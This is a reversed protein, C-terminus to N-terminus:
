KRLREIFESLEQQIAERESDFKLQLGNKIVEERKLFELRIEERLENRLIDLVELTKTTNDCIKGEVSSMEIIHVPNLIKSDTQEKSYYSSDDGSITTPPKGVLARFFDITVDDLGKSLSSALVEKEQDSPKYYGFWQKMLVGMIFSFIGFLALSNSISLSIVTLLSSYIDLTCSFPPNLDYLRECVKEFSAECTENVLSEINARIEPCDTLLREYPINLCGLPIGYYVNPSQYYLGQGSLCSKSYEQNLGTELLYRTVNGNCVGYTYAIMYTTTAGPADNVYTTTSAPGGNSFYTDNFTDYTVMQNFGSNLTLYMLMYNTPIGSIPMRSSQMSTASELLNNFNQISPYVNWSIDQTGLKNPEWNTIQTDSYNVYLKTVPPGKVLSYLNTGNPTQFIDGDWSWLNSSQIDWECATNMQWNDRAKPDLTIVFNSGAVRSISSAVQDANFIVHIKNEELNYTAKRLILCQGNFTYVDQCLYDRDIFSININSLYGWDFFLSYSNSYHQYNSPWQLYSALPQSINWEIIPPSMLINMRVVKKSSADMKRIINAYYDAIYVNDQSDVDVGYMAQFPPTTTTGDLLTVVSSTSNGTIRRLLNNGSDAVYINGDNGVTIGSPRIFPPNAGNGINIVAGTVHDIMRVLNNYADTVYM